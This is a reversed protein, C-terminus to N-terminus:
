DGKPRKCCRRLNWATLGGVLVLLVSSPEPVAGAMIGMGPTSEYAWDHITLYLNEGNPANLDHSLRIWGYHMSGQIDFSVGLFGSTNVFSGGFDLGDYFLMYGVLMDEGSWWYHSLDEPDTGIFAGESLAVYDDNYDTGDAIQHAIGWNGDVPNFFLQQSYHDFIVDSIGNDDMDLPYTYGVPGMGLKQEITGSWIISASTPVVCLVLWALWTCFIVFWAM